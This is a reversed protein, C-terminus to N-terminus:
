LYFIEEATVGYSDLQEKHWKEMREVLEESLETKHSDIAGQRVFQSNDKGSKGYYDKLLQGETIYNCMPNAKMKEFSLHHLLKAMQKEDVNRDLFKSMGLIVSRLDKKMREFSSFFIYPENRLQWFEISQLGFPANRIKNEIALNVYEENTGRFVGLNCHHHYYSLIADKPNRTVFIIKPKVTWLGKPLLHIPLHSKIIRPSAMKDILDISNPQNPVIANLELYPVRVEQAIKLATEYDFNSHLLWVLEIMWTTGSKPQSVVWIDDKRVEFDEIQQLYKEKCWTQLITFRKNCDFEIPLNENNKSFVKMVETGVIPEFRFNQSM